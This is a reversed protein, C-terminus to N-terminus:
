RRPIGNLVALAADLRERLDDVVLHLAQLHGQYRATEAEAADARKKEDLYLQLVNAPTIENPDSM